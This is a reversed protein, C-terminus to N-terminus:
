SIVCGQGQEGSPLLPKFCAAPATHKADAKNDAVDHATGAASEGESEYFVPKSGKISEYFTGSRPRCFDLM